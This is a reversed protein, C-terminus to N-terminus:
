RLFFSSSGFAESIPFRARRELRAVAFSLLLVHPDKLPAVPVVAFETRDGCDVLLLCNPKGM